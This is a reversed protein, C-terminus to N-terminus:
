KKGSRKGSGKKPPAKGRRTLRQLKAKKREADVDVLLPDGAFWQPPYYSAVREGILARRLIKRGSRLGDGIHTGFIRARAEEVTTATSTTGSSSARGFSPGASEVSRLLATSQRLVRNMM